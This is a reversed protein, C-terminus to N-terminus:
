SFWWKCSEGLLRMAVTLIIVLKNELFESSKSQTDEKNRRHYSTCPTSQITEYVLNELIMARLTLKNM